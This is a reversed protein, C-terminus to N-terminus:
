AFLYDSFLEFKKRAIKQAQVTVRAQCFSLVLLAFCDRQSVENGDKGGARAFLFGFEM